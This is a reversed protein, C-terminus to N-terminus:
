SVAPYGLDAAQREFDVICTYRDSDGAVAEDLLLAARVDALAPDALAGQLGARLRTLGDDSTEGGTIFPLAPAPPSVCVVRTGVLVKPAHAKLLGHTVCDVAAVDAAGAGVMELSHRHSGSVLVESFFRGGMALPAVMARLINYGSHSTGENVACRATRLDMLSQAPSSAQVVVVSRYEPGRCGEATYCPTAVVRVKGALAHMLPYGCTQSFLLDRDSWHAIRGEPQSVGDEPQSVRDEPQSLHRPVDEVGADELHDALGSWWGATIDKLEPLAYMPLSARNM